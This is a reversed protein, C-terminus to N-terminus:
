NRARLLEPRIQGRNDSSNSDVVPAEGLQRLAFVRVILSAEGLLGPTFVCVALFM